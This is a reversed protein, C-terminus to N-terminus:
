QESFIQNGIRIMTSGEELAIKYDGSMGMSIENGVINSYKQSLKKATAFVGRTLSENNHVGMVMLGRLQLYKSDVIENSIFDAFEQITFGSKQPEESINLQFLIYTQKQQKEAQKTVKDYIKKSSVSHIVDFHTVIDQIKNTQIPGIFHKTVSGFLHMKPLADQLRNEAIHKIGCDLATQIESLSRKKTVVILKAQYKPCLNQFYQLKKQIM